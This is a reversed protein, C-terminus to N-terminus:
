LNYARKELIELLEHDSMELKAAHKALNEVDATDELEKVLSNIM